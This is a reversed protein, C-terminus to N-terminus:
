IQQLDSFLLRQVIGWQLHSFCNCRRRRLSIYRIKVLHRATADLPISNSVLTANLSNWNSNIIETDGIFVSVSGSFFAFFEWTGSSEEPTVLYGMWVVSLPSPVVEAQGSTAGAFSFFNASYGFVQFYFGSLPSPSATTEVSPSM